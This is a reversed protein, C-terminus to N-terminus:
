KSLGRFKKRNRIATRYGMISKQGINNKCFCYDNRYLVSLYVKASLCCCPIYSYCTLSDLCFDYIADKKARPNESNKPKRNNTCIGMCWCFFSIWGILVFFLYYLINKM